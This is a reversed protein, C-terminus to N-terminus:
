NARKTRRPAFTCDAFYQSPPNSPRRIEKIRYRTEDGSDLTILLHDGPDWAHHGSYFGSLTLSRGSPSSHFIFARTGDLAIRHTKM